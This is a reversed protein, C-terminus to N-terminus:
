RTTARKLTQLATDLSVAYTRTGLRDESVGRRDFVLAHSATLDFGLADSVRKYTSSIDEPEARRAITELELGSESLEGMLTDCAPEPADGTGPTDGTLDRDDVIGILSWGDIQAAALASRFSSDSKALELLQVGEIFMVRGTTEAGVTHETQTVVKNEVDYIRFPHPAECFARSTAFWTGAEEFVGIGKHYHGSLSLRVKGSAVIRDRLESAERYSHPYGQNSEPWVMYHQLHIQPTPDKDGLVREFREQQPGLREAFHDAVEEDNFSVFRYGGITTDPNQDSFVDHFTSPQDHNGFLYLVPCGIPDIVERILQLDQRTRALCAPDDMGYFPTDVLDGTVALVDPRHISIAVIAKELLDPMKRSRRGIISPHGHVHRRAHFDSLHAIRM